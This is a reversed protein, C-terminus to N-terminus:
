LVCDKQWRYRAREATILAMHTDFGTYSLFIGIDVTSLNGMPHPVLHHREQLPMQYIRAM